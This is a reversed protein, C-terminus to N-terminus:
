RKRKRLIRVALAIIIATVIAAALVLEELQSQIFPTSPTAGLSVVVQHTSHHYTFSVLWSDGQSESSYALQNEDLHIKLGSADTILTKPIDLDVYGTTGTPGHRRKEFSDCEISKNTTQV